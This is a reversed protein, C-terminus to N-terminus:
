DEVVLDDRNLVDNAIDIFIKLNENESRLNNLLEKLHIAEETLKEIQQKQQILNLTKQNQEDDYVKKSQCIKKHRSLSSSDSYIKKCYQCTHKDYLVKVFIHNNKNHEILDPKTFFVRSCQVCECIENIKVNPRYCIANNDNINNLTNLISLKLDEINGKYIERKVNYQQLNNKLLKDANYINKCPFYCHLKPEYNCGTRYEKIRRNLRTTIGIKFVNDTSFDTQVIYVDGANECNKFINKGLKNDNLIYFDNYRLDYKCDLKVHIEIDKISDFLNNCHNCKYRNNVKIIENPNTPPIDVIKEKHIKIHRNLNSKKNTHYQCQECKHTSM